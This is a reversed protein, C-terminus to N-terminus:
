SGHATPFTDWGDPRCHCVRRYAKSDGLLDLILKHGAEGKRQVPMACTGCLRIRSIKSSAPNARTLCVAWAQSSGWLLYARRCRRARIAIHSCCQTRDDGRDPSLNTLDPCVVPVTCFVPTFGLCVSQPSTTGLFRKMGQFLHVERGKACSLRNVQLSSAPSYGYKRGPRKHTCSSPLLPFVHATGRQSPKGLFPHRPAVSGQLSCGSPHCLNLLGASQARQQCRNAERPCLELSATDACTHRAHRETSRTL